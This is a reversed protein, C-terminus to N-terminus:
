YFKKRENHNMKDFSLSKAVLRIDGRLNVVTDYFGALITCDKRFQDFNKQVKQGKYELEQPDWHDYAFNFLAFLKKHFELNNVKKISVQIADGIKIKGLADFSQQNAPALAGSATKFLVISM